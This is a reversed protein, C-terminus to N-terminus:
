EFCNYTMDYQITCTTHIEHCFNLSYLDIQHEYRILHRDTDPLINYEYHHIDYLSACGVVARLIYIYICCKLSIFFTIDAM